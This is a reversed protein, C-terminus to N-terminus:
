LRTQRKFFRVNMKEFARSSSDIAFDWAEVRTSFNGLNKIESLDISWYKTVSGFATERPDRKVNVHFFEHGLSEILCLNDLDKPIQAESLRVFVHPISRVNVTYPGAFDHIIGESTVIGLHGICPFLWSLLPIPSWVICLPYQDRRPDPIIQNEIDNDYETAAM